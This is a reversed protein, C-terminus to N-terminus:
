GKLFSILFIILAISYIVISTIYLKKAKRKNNGETKYYRRLFINSIILIIMAVIFITNKSIGLGLINIM